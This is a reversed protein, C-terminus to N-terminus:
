IIITFSVTHVMEIEVKLMRYTSGHDELDNENSNSNENREDQEEEERNSSKDKDDLERYYSLKEEYFNLKDRFNSLVVNKKTILL